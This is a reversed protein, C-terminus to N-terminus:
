EVAAPDHLPAFEAAAELERLVEETIRCHGKLKAGPHVVRYGVADIVPLRADAIADLVKHIADSSPEKREKGKGGPNKSTLDHGDSDRFELRAAAGVGSIEGEAVSCTSDAKGEFVSFKISSSGSNIVLIHMADGLFVKCGTPLM